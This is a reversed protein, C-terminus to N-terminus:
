LDRVRWAELRAADQITERASKAGGEVRGNGDYRRTSPTKFDTQGRRAGM